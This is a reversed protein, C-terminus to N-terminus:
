VKLGLISIVFNYEAKIKKWQNRQPLHSPSSASCEKTIGLLVALLESVIM